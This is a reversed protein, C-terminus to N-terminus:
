RQLQWGKEADRSFNPSCKKSYTENRELGLRSNLDTYLRTRYGSSDKSATRTDLTFTFKVRSIPNLWEVSPPYSPQESQKLLAYVHQRDSDDMIQDFVYDAKHLNKLWDYMPLRESQDLALWGKIAELQKMLELRYREETLKVSDLYEDAARQSYRRMNELSAEMAEPTQAFVALQELLPIHRQLDETGGAQDFDPLFYRLIMHFHDNVAGATIGAGGERIPEGTEMLKAWSRPQLMPLQVTRFVFPTKESHSTDIYYAPHFANAYVADFLIPWVALVTKKKSEGAKLLDAGLSKHHYSNIGAYRIKTEVVVEAEPDIQDSITILVGADAVFPLLLLPLFLLLFQRLLKM